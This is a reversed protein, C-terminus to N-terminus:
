MGTDAASSATPVIAIYANGYYSMMKGAEIRREEKCDQVICLADIWIYRVGLSRALIVADRLTARLDLAFPKLRKSLNARVTKAAEM